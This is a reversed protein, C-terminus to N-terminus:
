GSAAQRRAMLLEAGKRQILKRQAETNLLEVVDQTVLLSLKLERGPRFTDDVFYRLSSRLETCSREVRASDCRTSLTVVEHCNPVRSAPQLGKLFSVSSGVM